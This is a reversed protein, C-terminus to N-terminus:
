SSGQALAPGHNPKQGVFISFYYINYNREM